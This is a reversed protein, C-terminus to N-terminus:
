LFAGKGAVFDKESIEQISSSEQGSKRVVTGSYSPSLSAGPVETRSTSNSPITSMPPNLTAPSDGRVLGLREEETNPANEPHKRHFSLGSLTLISREPLPETPSSPSRSRHFVRQFSYQRRTGTAPDVDQGANPNANTGHSSHPVPIQDPRLLGDYSPTIQPASASAAWQVHTGSRSPTSEDRNTSDTGTQAPQDPTHGDPQGSVRRLSLPLGFFHASPNLSSVGSTSSLGRSRRTDLPSMPLVGSTTSDPRGAATSPDQSTNKRTFHRWFGPHMGNDPDNDSDEENPFSSMGLPPHITKPRHISPRTSPVSSITRRRRLGDWEFQGDESISGMQQEEKIRHVEMTERKQRKKSLGRLLAASSRISDARPEYEPEEQEAITRVQDLDGAFVATDPVDKASKSLQLLVVGSCIQLFGMVVTLIQIPTGKFGQALVASSVITASTFYVYYTPTVLAANYLNLAKQYSDATFLNTDTWFQM